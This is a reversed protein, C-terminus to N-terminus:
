GAGFLLYGDEARRGGYLAADQPDTISLQGISESHAAVNM